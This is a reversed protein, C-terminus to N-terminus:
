RPAQNSPIAPAASPHSREVTTLPTQPAPQKWQNKVARALGAIAGVTMVYATLAIGTPRDDYGVLIHLLQGLPSNRTLIDSTDWLPDALTPLWDAQALMGAAQSAMSGALLVILTGTVTFLYRPSIRLLGLYLATGCLAGLGLGGLGGMVMDRLSSESESAAVGYLFLIAESGERLLAAGVVVALGRMTKEGAQVSRGLAKFADRMSQANRAMWIHHWGLMGVALLLIGANFLEQGAGQALAALNEAFYAVLAAGACGVGVGLGIWRGRGAIGRTAALVLGIILSAELVERFVIIASALM